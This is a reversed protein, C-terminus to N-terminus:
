IATKILAAARGGTMYSPANTPGSIISPMVTADAVRLGRVRHVCLNNDVVSHEDVGIKATGVAHAGLPNTTAMLATYRVSAGGPM